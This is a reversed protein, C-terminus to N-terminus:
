RWKFFYGSKIMNWDPMEWSILYLMPIAIYSLLNYKNFRSQYFPFQEYDRTVLRKEIIKLFRLVKILNIM